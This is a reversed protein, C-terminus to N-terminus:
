GLHIDSEALANALDHKSTLSHESIIQVPITRNSITGAVAGYGYQALLTAVAAQADQEDGFTAVKIEDAAFAETPDMWAYGGKGSWCEILVWDCAGDEDPQDLKRTVIVAETNIATAKRHIM